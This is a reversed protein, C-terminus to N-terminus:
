KVTKLYAYMAKSDAVTQNCAGSMPPKVPKGDDDLGKTLLRVFTAQTYHAMPRTSAHLSPSFHPKGMLDAGHCANCHKASILAKGKSVLGSSAPKVMHKAVAGTSATFALTIALIGSGLIAPSVRM